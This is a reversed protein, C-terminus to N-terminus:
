GVKKLTIAISTLLVAAWYAPYLRSARGKIFDIGSKTKEISLFIVFGSIIFFLEVGYKGKPFYFMVEPTHVYVKNYWTTSHYLVVGLAAL